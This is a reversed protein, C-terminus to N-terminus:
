YFFSSISSSSKESSRLIHNRYKGLRLLTLSGIRTAKQRQQIKLMVSNRNSVLLYVTTKGQLLLEQALKEFGLSYLHQRRFEPFTFTGFLYGSAADVKITKEIEDVYFDSLSVWNVHACKGNVFVGVCLCGKQFKVGADPTIIKFAEPLVSFDQESLLKVDVGPAHSHNISSQKLDHKFLIYTGLKFKGM